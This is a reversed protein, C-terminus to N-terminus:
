WICARSQVRCSWLETAGLEQKKRLLQLSLLAVDFDVNTSVRCVTVESLSSVWSDASLQRSVKLRPSHDRLAESSGVGWRGSKSAMQQCQM